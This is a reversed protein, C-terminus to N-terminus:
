RDRETIEFRWPGSSATLANFLAQDPQLPSNGDDLFVREGADTKSLELFEVSSFFARPDIQIRIRSENTLTTEFPIPAVIRQQCIPNSGPLAANRLPLKRNRGITLRGTFPIKELGKRAIGAVSLIEKSSSEANVVSESLWIEASQTLLDTGNGEIQFDIAEPSLLNITIPARIEGTYVGPQICSTELQYNQPNQASFYVAGIFLKAQTLTVEYQRATVFTLPGGSVVQNDGSASMQFTVVNGGTSQICSSCLLLFAMRRM